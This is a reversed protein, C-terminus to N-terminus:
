GHAQYPSRSHGTAPPEQSSLQLRWNSSAFRTRIGLTVLQKAVNTSIVLKGVGLISIGPFETHIILTTDQLTWPCFGMCVVIELTRRGLFPRSCQNTMRTLIVSTGLHKCSKHQIFLSHATASGPVTPATSPVEVEFDLM